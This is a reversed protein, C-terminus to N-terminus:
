GESRYAATVKGALEFVQALSIEKGVYSAAIEQLAADSLTKNGEFTVSSLEFRKSAAGEPAKQDATAPVDLPAGVSPAQEPPLYREEARGPDVTAQAYALTSAGTITAAAFFGAVLGVRSFRM